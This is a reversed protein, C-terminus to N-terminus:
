GAPTDQLVSIINGAPDTFWAIMPGRPDRVIGQADAELGPYREMTVGAATLESVAAVIDTVQFNLITFTAPVFDPKPYVFVSVGGPLHLELGRDPDEGVELGLTQSYFAKAEAIDKVAFGSFASRAQFM